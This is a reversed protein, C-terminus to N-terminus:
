DSMWSFPGDWFTHRGGGEMVAGLEGEGEGEGLGISRCSQRSTPLAGQV